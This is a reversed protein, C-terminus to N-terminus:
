PTPTPNQGPTAVVQFDSFCSSLRVNHCYLNNANTCKGDSWYVIVTVKAANTIQSPQTCDSSNKQIQVERVFSDVNPTCTSGKLSIDKSNKDLCYYNNTDTQNYSSFRTWDSDRIQRMIEIGEQAYQTAVGQSKSFQANNLASIVATAIAYIVAVAATLAVLVEILTQGKENTQRLEEM